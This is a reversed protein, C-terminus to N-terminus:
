TAGILLPFQSPGKPASSISLDAQSSYANTWSVAVAWLGLPVPQRDMVTRDGAGPVAATGSVWPSFKPITGEPRRQERSPLSGRPTDWSVGCWIVGVIRRRGDPCQATAPGSGAARSFSTAM